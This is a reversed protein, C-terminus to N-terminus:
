EVAEGYEIRHGLPWERSIRMRMRMSFMSTFVYSRPHSSANRVYYGKKVM